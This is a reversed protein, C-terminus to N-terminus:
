NVVRKYLRLATYLLGEWRRCERHLKFNEARVKKFSGGLTAKGLKPVKRRKAAVKALDGRLQRLNARKSPARNRLLLRIKKELSFVTIGLLFHGARYHHRRAYTMQLRAQKYSPAFLAERGDHAANLIESSPIVYGQKKLGAAQCTTEILKDIEYMEIKILHDFDEEIIKKQQASMM